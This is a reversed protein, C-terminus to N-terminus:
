RMLQMWLLEECGCDGPRPADPDRGERLMQLYAERQREISWRALMSRAPRDAENPAADEDNPAADEEEDAKPEPADGHQDTIVKQVLRRHEKAAWERRKRDQELDFYRVGEIWTQECRTFTSLPDGSWIVFDADKGVELSGVRDDIALQKAVNITVFKLAEHPEVNGYRVAKSAETNMRRALESSDSNFTTLVGLEHLIAGNHPIADQVEVKFGWWDSFSSAGAGHAAIADAVKYGELVHQFTGITFGFDEAVRILMLIEDQRYSHCHVLMDGNLIDVLADLELDRRPPMTRRREAAPLNRYREWRAAYQQAATFADRYVAEVGMRTNPYRGQNRVVNEGLAFKIGLKADHMHMDRASGGWKLKVVSHQGGIPNASGHLQSAGTLGGALQRYWNVDDPNIVDSIRTEATNVQTWENVGGSIGTHSHCDLLGPTIHKGEANITHEVNMRPPTGSGIGRIVGDQVHMWGNEIIGDPGATWITASHVLVNQPELPEMLGYAGLPVPYEEPPMEVVKAEREADEGRRTGTSTGEFGDGVFTDEYADDRVLADVRVMGMPTDIEYQLDGSEANFRINSLPTEFDMIVSTGHYRGDADREFTLTGVVPDAFGSMESTIIWEGVLPDDPAEDADEVEGEAADEEESAEADEEKEVEEDLEIRFGFTTGDPLVGHGALHDEHIIGGFRVYGTLEFPRGDIIFSVQDRQVTVQQARIADDKGEPTLTIRSRNTDIEIAFTQERTTRMTGKGVLEIKPDASVEHRRGNIWTARIKANEDFLEGKVVVLNALKGAEITGMVRDLELLAAPKTTLAALADDPDLGVAIATRLAAYFTNKRRLRHTTLAIEVEADILRRPNTPAQEWTMLERLSTSEAQELTSVSPREPYQLPVIIPLGLSVIEDLRRFEMGSGLLIMDLNFEEAVRAARLANQEDSTDFMIRQRREIVSALSELAESRAPPEHGTPDRDYVARRDRHWQADLLTQRLLAISGMLAGPYTASTWRGGYDFGGALHAHDRYTRLHDEDETLAIVAGTGRLIGSDPYVAAATFGLDRLSKRAAANPLPQDAMRIEPHIRENWHRGVSNPRAGASILMAPEILGPYVTLGEGSWVRYGAPVDLGEGVSEIM